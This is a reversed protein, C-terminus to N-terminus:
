CCPKIASFPNNFAVLARGGNTGADVARGSHGIPNTGATGTGFKGSALTQVVANATLDGAGVEVDFRGEVLLWFTEGNAVTVGAGLFPDVVGDCIANAGSLAGITKGIAGSKYTVGLGSGLTGGSDNKVLIAKITTASDLVPFNPDDLNYGSFLAEQGLMNDDDVVGKKGLGMQITEGAM